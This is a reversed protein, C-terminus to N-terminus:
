DRTYRIKPSSSAAPFSATSSPAAGAVVPGAPREPLASPPAAASRQLKMATVAAAQSPPRVAVPASSAPPAPAALAAELPAVVVTPVSATPLDTAATADSAPTAAATPAANRSSVFVAAATALFGFAAGAGLWRLFTGPRRHKPGLEAGHM